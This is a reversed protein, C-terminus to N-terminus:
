PLSGIWNLCEELGATYNHEAVFTARTKLEPVANGVACLTVSPDNIIDMTGDGIMFFRAEPYYSHLARYGLTKDSGIANSIAIDYKANLDFPQLGPPLEFEALTSIGKRWLTEDSVLKGDQDTHKFYLAISQERLGDMIAIPQNPLFCRQERVWTASDGVEVYWGREVLITQLRTRCQSIGRIDLPYVSKGNICIVTGYEAIATKCELGLLVRFNNLLRILPTDSNPVIADGSAITASLMGRIDKTTQYNRNSVVGDQDIM